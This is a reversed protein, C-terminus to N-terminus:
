AKRKWVGVPLSLRRPRLFLLCLPHTGTAAARAAGAAAVIGLDLCVVVLEQAFGVGPLHTPFTHM